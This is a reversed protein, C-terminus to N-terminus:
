ESGVAGSCAAPLDDHAVYDSVDVATRQALKGQRLDAIQYAARRLLANLEQKTRGTVAVRAQLEQGPVDLQADDLFISAFCGRHDYLTSCLVRCM